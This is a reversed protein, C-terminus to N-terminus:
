GPVPCASHTQLLLRAALWTRDTAASVGVLSCGPSLLFGWLPQICAKSRMRAQEHLVSLRWALLFMAQINGLMRALREQVLQFAGLPSNFQRREAVYRACMDFVGAAIGVPQWAVMIRSIALVKATDQARAHRM